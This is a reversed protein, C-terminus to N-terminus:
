SYVRQIAEIDTLIDNKGYLMYKMTQCMPNPDLVELSNIIHELNIIYYNLKGNLVVVNIPVYCVLRFLVLM